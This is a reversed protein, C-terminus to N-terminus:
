KNQLNYYTFFYMLWQKDNMANKFKKPDKINYYQIIKKAIFYIQSATEGLTEVNYITKLIFNFYDKNYSDFSINQNIISTYYQSLM